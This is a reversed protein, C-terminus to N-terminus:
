YVKGRYILIQVFKQALPRPYHRWLFALRCQTYGFCQMKSGRRHISVVIAEHLLHADGIKGSQDFKGELVSRDIQFVGEQLDKKSM